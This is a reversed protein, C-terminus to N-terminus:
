QFQVVNIEDPDDVPQLTKGIRRQQGGPKRDSKAREKKVRNTSM